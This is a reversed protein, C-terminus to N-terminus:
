WCATDPLVHSEGQRTAHQLPRQRVHTHDVHAVLIGLVPRVDDDAVREGVGDRGAQRRRFLHDDEEVPPPKGRRHEAPLAAVRELARVAAEGQGHVRGAAAPARPAM